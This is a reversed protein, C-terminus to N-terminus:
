FFNQKKKELKFLQFLRQGFQFPLYCRIRDFRHVRAEVSKLPTTLVATGFTGSTLAIVVNLLHEM